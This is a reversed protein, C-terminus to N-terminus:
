SQHLVFLLLLLLLLLMPATSVNENSMPIHCETHLHFSTQMFNHVFYQKYTFLYIYVHRRHSIKFNYRVFKFYDYDTSLYYTRRVIVIVIVIINQM